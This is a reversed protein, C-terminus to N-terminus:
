IRKELTKEFELYGRIGSFSIEIYDLLMSATEESPQMREQYENPSLGKKLWNREFYSLSKKLSPGSELYDAIIMDSTSHHFLLVLIALLGTRDKGAYCSFLVALEKRAGMFDFIASFVSRNNRLLSVSYDYYDRASPYKKARFYDGDSELPFNVCELGQSIARVPFGSKKIESLSRLDIFSGINYIDTLDDIEQNTFSALEGSRYFAPRGSELFIGPLARFNLM